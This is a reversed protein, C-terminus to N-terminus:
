TLHESTMYSSAFSVKARLKTQDFPPAPQHIVVIHTFGQAAAYAALWDAFPKEAVYWRVVRDGAAANQKRMQEVTENIGEKPRDYWTPWPWPDEPSGDMKKAFGEGKCELLTGTPIECGDYRAGNYEVGWNPPTGCVQWQYMASRVSTENRGPDPSPDPCLKPESRAVADAYAKLSAQVAEINIQDSVKTKSKAQAALAPLAAPDIAFGNGYGFYRGIIEGNQDRYFGDSGQIGEFLKVRNGKDDTYSLTLEGDFFHYDVNPAGPLKGDAANSRNSPVLLFSLFAVPGAVPASEALIGGIIKLLGARGGTGVAVAGATAVAGAIGVAGASTWRGHDDRPQNPDYDKRLHVSVLALRRLRADDLEDLPIELGLLQAKVLDNANLSEAIGTLIIPLRRLRIDGDFAECALWAIEDDNIRQYGQPTRRVLTCDPGLAVGEEDIVLGRCAPGRDHLRRMSEFINQM